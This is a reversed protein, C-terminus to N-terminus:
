SIITEPMPLFGELAEIRSLWDKINPYDDLMVKGEPARVVYPYFSIDAITVGAAGDAALWKHTGLFNNMIRFLQHAKHQAAGLDFDRGFIMVARAYVPGLLLESSAVSLWEQVRARGLPDKPLWKDDAYKEALYVLIANSDRIVVDGDVLVPVQGFPNLALYDESKQEKAPLDVRILEHPLGLISLFLRAKHAHGSAPADYLKIM